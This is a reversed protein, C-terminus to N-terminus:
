KKRRTKDKQHTSASPKGPPGSRAGINKKPTKRASKSEVGREPRPKKPRRSIPADFKDADLIQIEIRDGVTLERALWGVHQERDSDLGGVSFELEREIFVRGAPWSTKRAPDRVVSSLIASLVHHGTLGATVLQKGNLVVRFGIM